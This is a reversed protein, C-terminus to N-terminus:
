NINTTMVAVLTAHVKLDLGQNTRAHRRQLGMSELQSNLTEIGKRHHELDLEDIWHNPEMNIKRISVLRVGTDAQISAEDDASNFAKDGLAKAGQPLGFLLEHVPTLDHLSGPLLVFSVPVGETTCVLQLRWGFFKEQKAACYGCYIRGRVKRCRRARVRRCVPVPLSDLVFVEGQTWLAGLTQPMFAMWDALAHLRRNFRSVSIRGSLYGLQQLIGVSREHHNAFYKAAVVAIILIESDPVQALPHSHHDLHMMLDDMIVFNTIMWEANM